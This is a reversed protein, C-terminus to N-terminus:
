SRKVPVLIGYGEDQRRYVIQISDTEMDSFVFFDHGVAEMADIAEDVTMLDLEVKKTRRIQAPFTRNLEAFQKALAQSEEHVMTEYMVTQKFDEFEAESTEANGRPGARGPWKGKIIGLEKVKTLKREIKDCVLDIAAYLSEEADEVRVVGSGKTYITVEVKQMKKGLTGTDGGRASLSVDVEKLIQAFHACSRNIKEEVYTRIADTVQLRRGQIIVRIAKSTTTPTATARVIVTRLSPRSSSASVPPSAMMKNAPFAYANNRHSCSTAFPTLSRRSAVRFQAATKKLSMM